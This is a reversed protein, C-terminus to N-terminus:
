KEMEKLKAEEEDLFDLIYECTEIIGKFYGWERYGWSSLKAQDAELKELHVKSRRIKRECISRVTEKVM